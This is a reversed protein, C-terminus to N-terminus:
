YNGGSLRSLCCLGAIKHNGNLDHERFKLAHHMYDVFCPMCIIPLFVM